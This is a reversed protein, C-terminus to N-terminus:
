FDEEDVVRFMSSSSKLRVIVRAGESVLSGFLSRNEQPEVFVDFKSDKLINGFQSKLGRKLEANTIDDSVALTVRKRVKGDTDQIEVKIQVEM